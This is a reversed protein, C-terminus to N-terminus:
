TETEERQTGKKERERAKAKTREINQEKGFKAREGESSEGERGGERGERGGERAGGGGGIGGGDGGEIGEM